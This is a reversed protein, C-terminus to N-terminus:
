DDYILMLGQDEYFLFKHDDSILPLHTVMAHCIIIHDSPDYHEQAENIYLTAYRYGVEATIPLIEIGALNVVDSLVDAPSKWRPSSINGTNYAVVLERLSEASMCVKINPDSMIDYVYESLESPANVFHIFIHTDIM